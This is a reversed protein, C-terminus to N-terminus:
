RVRRARLFGYAALTSVTFTGITVLYITTTAAISIRVKPTPLLNDDTAGPVLAAVALSSANGLAGMTASTASISQALRTISTTAGANYGVIGEVDWEGATLSLSTVNAAVDTTLSIASGEAVSASKYEGIEAAAASDNTATAASLSLEWVPAVQTGRNRYVKGNTTDICLAGPLAVGIGDGAGTALAAEAMATVTGSGDDAVGTDATMIAISVLANAANHAEIATKVDAATSTIVSSSNTALSATIRAGSVSIALAQSAAGPDTYTVTISNGATGYVRATYILGNDDGAPNVTATAAVATTPAGAKTSFMGGFSTAAAAESTAVTADTVRYSRALLFPGFVAAYGPQITTVAGSEVQQAAGMVGAATATLVEGPKITHHTTGM